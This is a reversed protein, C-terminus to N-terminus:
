ESEIDKVNESAWKCWQYHIPLPVAYEPVTIKGFADRGLVRDGVKEILGRALLAAIAQRRFPVPMSIAIGEFTSVAAASMGKCPHDTM